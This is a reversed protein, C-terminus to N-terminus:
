FTFGTGANFVVIDNKASSFNAVVGSNGGTTTIAQVALLADNQISYYHAGAKVYWNGLRKPIFADLMYKADIGTTVFGVNSLECPALNTPGCFNTTGDNRNWFDSPALVVATPFTFTLPVGKFPTISPAVGLTVRFGDQKGLPIARNQNTVFWVNVFPQFGGFGWTNSWFSSDNFALSFDFNEVSGGGPTPFVFQVFEGTFTWYKAFGISMGAWWDLEQWHRTTAPSDVWSENWVGAFVSVSNIFGMPDKYIDFRLSASPQVLASSTPYLLWGSGTVRSSQYNLDFGGHVDLVWPSAVPVPKAKVPMDAASAVSSHAM